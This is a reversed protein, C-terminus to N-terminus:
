KKQYKYTTYGADYITYDSYPQEVRKGNVIYLRRPNIIRIKNLQMSELPINSPMSRDVSLLVRTPDYTKVFYKFLKVYGNIISTNIKNCYRIISYTNKNSSDFTMICVLLDNFYLGVNIYSAVGGNIHNNELFTETDINNVPKIDCMDSNISNPLIKIKELISSKIIDNRYLWSDEYIHILTISCDECKDCKIKHYNIPKNISSHWYLGNYEIGLKIEPLYIDLEYPPIINKSNTIVIGSYNCKIFELVDREAQSTNNSLPNCVTCYNIHLQKRNYLLDLPISYIHNQLCMINLVKTDYNGDIIHIDNFNKSVRRIWTKKLTKKKKDKIDVLKSVNDVGYKATIANLTKDLIEKCQLPNNVGYKSLMTKQQQEFINKNQLSYKVGYRELMTKERKVKSCTFCYYLSDNKTSKLYNQYTVMKQTHCTDCGVMVKVKSHLPLDSITVDICELSMDYGKNYYYIKNFKTVNVSISKSILM